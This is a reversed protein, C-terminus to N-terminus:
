LRMGAGLNDLLELGSLIVLLGLVDLTIGGGGGGGLKLIREVLGAGGRGMLELVGVGVM